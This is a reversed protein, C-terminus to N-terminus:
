DCSSFLSLGTNQLNRRVNARLTQKPSLCLHTAPAASHGYNALCQWIFRFRWRRCHAFAFVRPVIQDSLSQLILYRDICMLSLLPTKM